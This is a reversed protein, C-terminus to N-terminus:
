ANAALPYRAPNVENPLAVGDVIHSILQDAWFPALSTGKTGMGNFLYDGSGDPYRGIIPRRDMVTPRTGALHEIVEIPGSHLATLKELLDAKGAETPFPTTPYREYYSGIWYLDSAIPVIFVEDKIVGEINWALMRVLLAEGKNPVIGHAALPFTAGTAWIVHQRDRDIVYDQQDTSITLYKKEILYQHVAKLWGRTDLRYSGTMVGYPRDFADLAPMRKQSIYQLYGEDHLRSEWAQKAEDNSLFRVIDIEHFFTKEFISETWRYFDLAAPIFEDIRWTKVYRRGTIPAILGSSAFSAEGPTHCGVIEFPIQRRLCTMALACGAIGHGIILVSKDM